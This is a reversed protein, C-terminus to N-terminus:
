FKKIEDKVRSYYIVFDSYKSVIEGNIDILKQGYDTHLVTFELDKACETIQDVAILACGKACTWYYTLPLDDDPRKLYFENILEKAKEKPTLIPKM